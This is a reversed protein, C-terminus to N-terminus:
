AEGQMHRRRVRAQAEIRRRGKGVGNAATMRRQLKGVACLAGTGGCGPEAVPPPTPKLAISVTTTVAVRVGCPGSVTADLRRKSLPSM